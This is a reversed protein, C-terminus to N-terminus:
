AFLVLNSVILNQSKRHSVHVCSCIQFIVEKRKPPIYPRLSDTRKLNVDEEEVKCVEKLIYYIQNAAVSFVAGVGKLILILSGPPNRARM